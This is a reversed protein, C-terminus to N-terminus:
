TTNQIQIFIAIAAEDLDDYKISTVQHNEYFQVHIKEQDKLFFARAIEAKDAYFDKRSSTERVLEILSQHIYELSTDRTM